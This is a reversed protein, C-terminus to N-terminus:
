DGSMEVQPNPATYRIFHSLVTVNSTKNMFAVGECCHHILQKKEKYEKIHCLVGGAQNRNSAGVQIYTPVHRGSDGM